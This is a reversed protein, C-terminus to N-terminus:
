YFIPGAAACFLYSFPLVFLLSDYRDLIGGHGPLLTGYDKIGTIRKVSSLSLDGFQGIVSAFILYVTLKGYSVSLVGTKDLIFATLLFIVTAFAIGGLGGEVTKNPSIVPALKHKGWGKGVFYAAADTVHCVLIALGLMYVGSEGMRINVMTKYFCVIMCAIVAAAAPPIARMKGTKAMLYVFLVIAAPFMVWVVAEYRPIPVFCLVAAAIGSLACFVKRDKLGAARYLESIAQVCLLATVTNLFWPIHSFLLVLITAACIGAGTIVRTKMM